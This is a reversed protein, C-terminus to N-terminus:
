RTLETVNMWGGLDHDEFTGLIMLMFLSPSCQVDCLSVVDPLFNVFEIFATLSRTVPISYVIWSGPVMTVMTM